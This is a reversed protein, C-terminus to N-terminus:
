IHILSLCSASSSLLLTPDVVHPFSGVMIVGSKKWARSVVPLLMRGGRSAEVTSVWVVCSTPMGMLGVMSFLVKQPMM